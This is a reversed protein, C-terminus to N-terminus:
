ISFTHINGTQPHVGVGLEQLPQTHDANPGPSLKTQRTGERGSRCSVSVATRLPQHSTTQPQCNHFCPRLPQPVGGPCAAPRPRLNPEPDPPSAHDTWPCAPNSCPDARFQSDRSHLFNQFLADLHPMARRRQRGPQSAQPVRGGRLGAWTAQPLPGSAVHLTPCPETHGGDWEQGGRRRCGPFLVSNVSRSRTGPGPRTPSM